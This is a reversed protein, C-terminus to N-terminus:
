ISVDIKRVNWGEAALRVPQVTRLLVSQASYQQSLNTAMFVVRNAFRASVSGQSRDLRDSLYDSDDRDLRIRVNTGGDTLNSDLTLWMVTGYVILDETYNDKSRAQSRAHCPVHCRKGTECPTPPATPHRRRWEQGLAEYKLAHAGEHLSRRVTIGVALIKALAFKFRFFFRV